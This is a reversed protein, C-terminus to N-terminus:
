WRVPWLLRGLNLNATWFCYRDAETVRSPSGAATRSARKDWGNLLIAMGDQQPQTLSGGFPRALAAAFFRAHDIM